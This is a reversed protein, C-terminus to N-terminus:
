GRKLFWEALELDLMTDISIMPDEIIVASWKKGIITHQELLCERTLAYAAGNRHYLSSLQQRAIISAGGPDYLDLIDKEFTLQKLPHNKSDTPSVTWVADWTGDILKTITATVHEVKRLPCTPQLMVIVDYTRNDLREMETLVHILIPYDGIQDGSLSQPRYFPVELGATRAVEAIQPHDTSVVARDFYGTQKVIDAVYAVLPKGLLPYINKLKVGKSGGRAPVVALLTKGNLMIQTKVGGKESYRTLSTGTM